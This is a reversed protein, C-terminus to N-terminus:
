RGAIMVEHGLKITLSAIMIDSGNQVADGGVLLPSTAPASPLPYPTGVIFAIDSSVSMAHGSITAQAGIELVSVATLIIDDPGVTVQSGAINLTDSTPGRTPVPFAFM